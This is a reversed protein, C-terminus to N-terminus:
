GKISSVSFLIVSKYHNANWGKGTALKLHRSKGEHAQTLAAWTKLIINGFTRKKPM